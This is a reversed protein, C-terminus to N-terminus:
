LTGPTGWRSHTSALYTNWSPAGSPSHPAERTADRPIHGKTFITACLETSFFDLYRGAKTKFRCWDSFNNGIVVKSPSNLVKVRPPPNQTTQSLSPCFLHIPSTQRGM